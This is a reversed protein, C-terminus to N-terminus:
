PQDPQDPGSLESFEGEITQEPEPLEPRQLMALLKARDESYNPAISIQHQHTHQIQGSHQVNVQQPLRWHEFRRELLWAKSQWPTAEMIARVAVQETLREAKRLLRCFEAFPEEGAKGRRRWRTLSALDIDTTGCASTPTLGSAVTALFAAITGSELLKTPRGTGMMHSYALDALAECDARWYRPDDPRLPEETEDAM